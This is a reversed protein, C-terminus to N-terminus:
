GFEGPRWLTLSKAPLSQSVCGGPMMLQGHLAWNQSYFLYTPYESKKFARQIAFYRPAPNAHQKNSAQTGAAQEVSYDGTHWLRCLSAADRIVPYISQLYVLRRHMSLCRLAPFSYADPSEWVGTSKVTITAMAAANNRPSHLANHQVGKEDPKWGRLKVCVLRCGECVGECVNEGEGRV